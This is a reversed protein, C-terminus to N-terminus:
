GSPKGSAGGGNEGGWHYAVVKEKKGKVTLERREAGPLLERAASYVADSVLLAGPVANSELRQALNVADGIFTYERRSSSGVNARIARGANVGIRVSFPNGKAALDKFLALIRTGCRAAEKPDRFAAFICDGIYKDVDGGCEYIMRTAPDFLENLAGVVEAASHAESFSTFGKVDMFMFAGNFEAEELDFIGRAVHEDVERWVERPTYRHILEKQKRLREGDLYSKRSLNALFSETDDLIEEAKELQRRLAAADAAVPAAKPAKVVARKPAALAMLCVTTAHQFSGSLPAAGAVAERFPSQLPSFEGGSYFGFVPVKAGFVGRVADLERNLTSHLIWGRTCCSVMLILSPDRGALGERCREAATRAGEVLGKRSAQILQVERGELPESPFYDVWGKELDCAVALKLLTREGGQPRVAFAFRQIMLEFFRSSAGRGLFQRYYDLIPMGEIQFVRSGVARTIRAPQSVPDWGHECGFSVGWEPALELLGLGVSRRCLEGGAYQFNSTFEPNQMGLDYDGCLMGGFVGVAGLERPVEQLAPTLNGYGTPGFVLGVPLGGSPPKLGSALLRGLEAADRDAKASAFSLRAGDLSLNLVAVSGRTVGGPTVELYSSGGLIRRPDLRRSLEAWSKKQNLRIGTFALTLDPKPVARCAQAAAAAAAKGADTDIGLGIGVRM